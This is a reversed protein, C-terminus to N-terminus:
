TECITLSNPSKSPPHILCVTPVYPRHKGDGQHPPRDCLGRTNRPADNLLLRLLARQAYRLRLLGFLRLLFLPKRTTTEWMKKQKAPFTM